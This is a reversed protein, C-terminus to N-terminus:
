RGAAASQVRVPGAHRRARASRSQPGPRLPRHDMRAHGAPRRGAGGAGRGHGRRSGGGPLPSDAVRGAPRCIAAFRVPGSHTHVLHVMLRAVGAEVGGVFPGALVMRGRGRDVLGPGPQALGAPEAGEAEQFTLATAYLPRHIGEAVDHAACGWMRAYIGPPPTMDRRAVGIRGGFSPQRVELIAHRRRSRQGRQNSSM